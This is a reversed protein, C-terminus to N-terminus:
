PNNRMLYALLVVFCDFGVAYYWLEPSALIFAISFLVIFIAAWIFKPDKAYNFSM